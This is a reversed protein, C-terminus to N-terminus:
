KRIRQTELALQKLSQKSDPSVGILPPTNSHPASTFTEISTYQLNKVTSLTL